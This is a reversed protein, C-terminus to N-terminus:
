HHDNGCKTLALSGADSQIIYTGGGGGLTVLGSLTNNGSINQMGVSANNRAAFYIPNSLTSDGALELRATSANGSPDLNITGSGLAGSAAARLVAAGAGAGITTNGSYANTNSLTLTGAGLKLLAGSGSITGNYSLDDSRNFTLTGNNTVNSFISGTTGGNGVQLTGASITTADTYTNDGTLTLTGTGSKTLAAAGSIPSAVTLANAANNAWTQDAGLMVQGTTNITTAGAGAAVTLGNAGLTLNHTGGMTVGTANSVTVGKVSFDAGLVTDPLNTAGSAAFTIDTDADPVQGADTTGAADSAWNTNGATITSWNSDVDGKWFSAKVGVPVIEGTGFQQAATGNFTIQALQAATLVQGTGIFFRDAGLSYNTVTLTKGSTFTGPGSYTLTSAGNGFDLTSNDM